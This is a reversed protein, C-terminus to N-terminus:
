MENGMPSAPAETGTTTGTAGIAGRTQTTGATSTTRLSNTTEYNEETEMNLSREDTATVNRQGSIAWIIMVVLIVGLIASPVYGWSRSYPWAPLSGILLIILIVFLFNDM